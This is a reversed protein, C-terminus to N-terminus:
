THTAYNYGGLDFAGSLTSGPEPPNAGVGQIGLTYDTIAGGFPNVRLYYDGAALQTAIAEDASGVNVSAQLLQGTSDYLGLDADAQLNTLSLTMLSSSSLSFRLYDDFDTDGVFNVFTRNVLGSQNGLNLATAFTNGPDVPM